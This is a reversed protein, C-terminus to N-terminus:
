KREQPLFLYTVTPILSDHFYLRFDFNTSGYVSIPVNEAIVELTKHIQFSFKETIILFIHAKM